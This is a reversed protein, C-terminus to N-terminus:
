EKELLILQTEEQPLTAKKIITKKEPEPASGFEKLFETVPKASPDNDSHFAMPIVVRPEVSNVAKMAGEADYVGTAGVPVILVDVGALVELQKDTLQQDTWGLHGISVGEADLRIMTSEPNNGQVAAILVGHTEIEGPGILEFPTGQLTIIQEKQGRTCIVIDTLLSRPGSGTDSAYPDILVTVDTDAPKMQLKIFTKGLWYIHM